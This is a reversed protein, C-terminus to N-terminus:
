FEREQSGYKVCITEIKKNVMTKSPRNSNLVQAIGQELAPILDCNDIVSKATTAQWKESFNELAKTTASGGINSINISTGKKRFIIEGNSSQFVINRKAKWSSGRGSEMVSAKDKFISKRVVSKGTKGPMSLSQPVPVPIRSKLFKIELSIKGFEGTGDRKLTFLRKSNM